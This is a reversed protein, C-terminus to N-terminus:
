IFRLDVNGLVDQLGQAGVDGVDQKVEESSVQHHRHLIGAAEATLHSLTGM